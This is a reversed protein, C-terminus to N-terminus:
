VNPTAGFHVSEGQMECVSVTNYWQLTTGQHSFQAESMQVEPLTVLTNLKVYLLYEIFVQDNFQATKHTYRFNAITM